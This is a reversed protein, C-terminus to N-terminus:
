IRGDLEDYMLLGEAEKYQHNMEKTEIYTMFLKSIPVTRKIIFSQKYKSDRSLDSFAQAVELNFTWSILTKENARWQGETCMGRYIVVEEIDKLRLYARVFAIRHLLYKKRTEKEGLGVFIDSTRTVKGKYPALGMEALVIYMGKMWEGSNPNLVLQAATKCELEEMGISKMYENLDNALLENGEVSDFNLDENSKIFTSNEELWETITNEIREIEKETKERQEKEIDIELPNNFKEILIEINKVAAEDLIKSDKTFQYRVIDEAPVDWYNGKDEFGTIRWRFMASDEFIEEIYGPTRRGDLLRCVNGHVLFKIEGKIYESDPLANENQMHVGM